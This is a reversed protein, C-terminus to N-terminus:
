QRLLRDIFKRTRNAFVAFQARTTKATPEFTEIFYGNRDYITVLQSLAMEDIDSKYQAGNTDVFEDRNIESQSKKVAVLNITVIYKRGAEGRQIGAVSEIVGVFISGKEDYYKFQGYSYLWFKNYARKDTFYLNLTIKYSAKGMAHFNSPANLLALESVKYDPSPPSYPEVIRAGVEEYGYPGEVFLRRRYFQYENSSPNQQSM